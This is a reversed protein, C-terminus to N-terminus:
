GPVQVEREEELQLTVIGGSDEIASTIVIWQRYPVDQRSKVVVVRDEPRPKNRLLAGLRQPLQTVTVPDGNLFLAGRTLQVEINESEQENETKESSPLSQKRGSDPQVSVCVLFFVILNFAIDGTASAPPEVLLRNGRRLRM